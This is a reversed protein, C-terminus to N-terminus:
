SGNFTQFFNGYVLLPNVATVVENKFLDEENRFIFLVVLFGQILKFKQSIGDDVVSYATM